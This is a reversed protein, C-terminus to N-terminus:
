WPSEDVVAEDDILMIFLVACNLLLHWLLRISDVPLDVAVEDIVGNPLGELATVVDSCGGATTDVTSVTIPATVYDEGFVDYFKIAYTGSVADAPFTVGSGGSIEYFQESIRATADVFMFAVDLRECEIKM